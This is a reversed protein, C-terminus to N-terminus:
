KGGSGFYRSRSEHERRKDQNNRNTIAARHESSGLTYQPNPGNMARVVEAESSIQMQAASVHFCSIIHATLENTRDSLSSFERHTYRSCVQM